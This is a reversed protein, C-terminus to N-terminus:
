RLSRGSGRPSTASTSATRRTSCTSRATWTARPRSSGPWPWGGGTRTRRCGSTTASSRAACGPGAPRTSTVASTTSRASGSTCTPPGARRRATRPGGRAAVRERLHADRRRAPGPHRLPGRGHHRDGPRRRRPRGARVHRPLRRLREYTTELDGAAWCALGILATGAGLALLDDEDRLDLAADPTRSPRRRRRGRWRWARRPPHRGLDPLWGFEEENVVVMGPPRTRAAGSSAELGANPTGCGSTSGPSRPPAWCRARRLRHLAGAPGHHGRRAPGRALAAAHGGPPGPARRCAGSWWTPRARSTAASWRTASRRRRARRQRRVVPEGPPAAGPRAEPQEDLLRAQLVDAFLHHYRYWRRQDDLPVLFLNGRELAQLMAKGGARRHGRRVAPREAPPPGVDPAPLGPRGRVSAPRGGRGPLRRRVPRRRRLRRHVGRRRRPGADLARGAPARRDLRRHTGRARRRGTPTLELGM